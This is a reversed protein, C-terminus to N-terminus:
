QKRRQQHNSASTLERDIEALTLRLRRRLEKMGRPTYSYIICRIHRLDFPVDELSQSILVGPKLCAHAWGLEYCVNPNRMTLDAVFVDCAEIKRLIDDIIPKASYIEDARQCSFGQSTIAPKLHENYIIDFDDRFPMLIFCSKAGKLKRLYENLTSFFREYDTIGIPKLFIETIGLRPDALEARWSDESGATFIFLPTTTDRARISRILHIGNREPLALDILYADFRESGLLQEATGVTSVALVEFGNSSFRPAMHQVYHSDDELWMIRPMFPM